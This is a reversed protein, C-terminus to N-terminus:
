SRSLGLEGALWQEKLQCGAPCNRELLLGIIRRALDAHFQNVRLTATNEGHGDQMRNSRAQATERM